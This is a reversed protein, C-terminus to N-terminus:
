RQSELKAVLEATLISITRAQDAAVAKWNTESPLKPDRGAQSSRSMSELCDAAALIVEKPCYEHNMRLDEILAALNKPTM